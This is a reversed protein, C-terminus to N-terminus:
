APLKHQSVELGARQLCVCLDQLGAHGAAALTAAAPEAAAVIVHLRIVLNSRGADALGQMLGQLQARDLGSGRVKVSLTRLSWPLGLALELLARLLCGDDGHEDSGAIVAPVLDLSLVRLCPLCRTLRAALKATPTVRGAAAQRPRYVEAVAALKRADLSQILPLVPWQAVITSLTNARACRAGIACQQNNIVLKTPENGNSALVATLAQVAQGQASHAATMTTPANDCSHPARVSAAAVRLRQLQPLARLMQKLQPVDRVALSVLRLQHVRPLLPLELQSFYGDGSLLGQLQMIGVSRLAPLHALVHVWWRCDLAPLRLDTLNPFCSRLHHAPQRPARGDRKPLYLAMELMDLSTLSPLAASVSQMLAADGWDWGKAGWVLKRLTAPGALSCLVKRHRSPDRSPADDADAGNDGGHFTLSELSPLSALGALVQEVGNPPM